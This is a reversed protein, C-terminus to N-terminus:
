LSAFISVFLFRLLIWVLLYFVAFSCLSIIKDTRTREIQEATVNKPIFLAIKQIWWLSVMLVTGSLFHWVVEHPYIM